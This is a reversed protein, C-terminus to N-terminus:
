KEEAAVCELLGRLDGLLRKVFRRERRGENSGDEVEFEGESDLDLGLAGVQWGLCVVLEGDITSVVNFDLTQGVGDACASFFMKEVHVDDGDVSRGGNGGTSLSIRGDFSLLNSVLWSADRDKSM